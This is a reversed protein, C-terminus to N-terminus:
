ESREQKNEYVNAALTVIISIISRLLMIGAVIMTFFVILGVVWNSGNGLSEYFRKMISSSILAMVAVSFAINKVDSIKIKHKM